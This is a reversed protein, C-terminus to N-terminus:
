KAELERFKLLASGLLLCPILYGFFSLIVPITAGRFPVDFGKEVYVSCDSFRDFDPIVYAMVVPVFDVVNDIGQVINRKSESMNMGISPNRHQFILITSEITGVGGDPALAKHILQNKLGTQGVIVITLTFLFAVPFKVTCSIVIGILAVLLIMLAIALLAKCYGFFFHRDPLRIFLDSQATGLYMQDDLCAVEIRLLGDKALDEFLDLQYIWGGEDQAVLLSRDALELLLRVWTRGDAPAPKEGALSIAGSDVQEQLVTMLLDANESAIKDETTLLQPLDPNLAGGTALTGADAHRSVIAALYRALTENSDIVYDIQRPIETVDAGTRYE